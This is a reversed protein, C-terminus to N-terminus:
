PYEELVALFGLLRPNIHTQLGYGEPCEKNRTMDKYELICQWFHTYESSLCLHNLNMVDAASGTKECSDEDDADCLALTTTPFDGTGVSKCCQGDLGDNYTDYDYGDFRDCNGAATIPNGQICGTCWTGPVDSIDYNSEDACALATKSSEASCTFYGQVGEALVSFFVLLSSIAVAM